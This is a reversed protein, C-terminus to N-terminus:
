RRSGRRQTKHKHRKADGAGGGALDGTGRNRASFYCAFQKQMHKKSGKGLPNIVAPCGLHVFAIDEMQGKTLSSADGDKPNLKQVAQIVGARHRGVHLAKQEQRKQEHSKAEEKCATTGVVGGKAVIVVLGRHKLQIRKHQVDQGDLNEPLLQQVADAM